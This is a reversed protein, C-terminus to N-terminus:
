EFLNYFMNYFIEGLGCCKTCLAQASHVSVNIKDSSIYLETGYLQSALWMLLTLSIHLLACKSDAKYKLKKYNEAAICFIYV